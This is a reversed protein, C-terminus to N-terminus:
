VPSLHSPLVDYHDPAIALDARGGTLSRLDLVYRSLESEPVQAEIRVMGDGLSETDSIRGRRTSLDGMVDGQTSVPVTVAIKSVPELVVSGAHVLADKLGSAAASRFAMDSSDVPHSKGDFVEVRVDVIPYGHPGGLAMGETIGKQVAAMYNRPISGGVVADVFEYGTGHPRPSVRMNVVAYQGHGGSQKKIKGEATAPGAITELYGVPVPATTVHVNFVRGLTVQGVPVMIPNGTDVVTTGRALGDTTTMAVSRVWNNGLHQQVECVIKGGDGRAVVVANYIAPLHGAPFEIDVVPGTIQIVTGVATPGNTGISTLAATAM